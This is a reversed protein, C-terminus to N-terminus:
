DKPPFILTKIILKQWAQHSHLNAIPHSQFWNLVLNYGMLINSFEKLHGASGGFVNHIQLKSFKNLNSKFYKLFLLLVWKVYIFPIFISLTCLTYIYFSHTYVYVLMFQACRLSDRGTHWWYTARYWGRYMHMFVNLSFFYVSHPPLPSFHRLWRM